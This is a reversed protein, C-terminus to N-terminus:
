SGPALMGQVQPGAWQERSGWGLSAQLAEPMRLNLGSPRPLLLRSPHPLSPLSPNKSDEMYVSLRLKLALGM